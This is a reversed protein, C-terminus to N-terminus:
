QSLPCIRPLPLSNSIAFASIYKQANPFCEFFVKTMGLYIFSTLEFTYGQWGHKFNFPIIFLEFILFKIPLQVILHSSWIFGFKIEAEPNYILYDLELYDFKFIVLYHMKLDFIFM